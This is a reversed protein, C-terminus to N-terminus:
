KLLSEVRGGVRRLSKKKRRTGCRGCSLYALEVRTREREEREGMDNADGRAAAAVGRTPSKERKSSCAVGGMGMVGSSPVGCQRELVDHRQELLDRLRELVGCQCSRSDPGSSRSEYRPGEGHPWELDGRWRGLDGGVELVEM